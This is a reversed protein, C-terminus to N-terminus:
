QVPLLVANSAKGNVKVRLESNSMSMGDPIRFRTAATGVMGPVAGTWEPQIPTDGATVEVPDALVVSWDPVTFGDIIRQNYPGFGTGYVTVLEGRKVPSDPTVPTGDEHTAAGYPQPDAAQSYLGPANRSVTFVGNVDPQGTWRVTLNYTGESLDSPVQANIQKPSVYMLPLIRDAVTVVVDGLTQSLPNKPGIVLGAALSEGYIAIISGPAVSGDATDGAANRIGAPAIYPIRDLMALISRPGTVTLQGVNYVGALDGGWRRFRFGPRAAATVTLQSGSPFFLDSSSPSLQFDVGQDPDSALAVRYSYGYNAFITQSDANVKLTRSVSGGDGWGLFDMRSNADVPVSSPAVIAVQTGPDRDVSCPSVCEKGDIQLKIGTPNTLVKVQGLSTYTATLRLDLHNPDLVLKQSAEGGNSWGQFTWSRGNSDVQAAPASFTHSTNSAWIFNYKPWNTRGDITVKLGIPNTLFAAQVGPVYKATIADVNSTNSDPIYVSNASLGNSFQDFVWWKGVTDLQPTVAGLVHKSGPLFDFEGFCLAPMSVPPMPPLSLTTMCPPYPTGLDDKSDVASTPTQTRDILLKMGPPSTSFRVRKALKFMPAITVPGNVTYTKLYSDFFQGNAIWGTFVFGPYPYANLTVPGGGWVDSSTDFCVGAVYLIGPRLVDQPSNGPAGCNPTSVPAFDGFRVMIKYSLTLNAMMWTVSPSATVTQDKLNGPGASGTSDTWGSFCYKYRSDVSVQCATDVANSIDTPFQVIHKSGQPWLFLQPANYPQGDVYFRAGSPSTSIRISSVPTTQGTVAACWILSLLSLRLYNPMPSVRVSVALRGYMDECRM